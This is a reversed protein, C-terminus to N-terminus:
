VEKQELKGLVHLFEDSDLVDKLYYVMKSYWDETKRGAMHM